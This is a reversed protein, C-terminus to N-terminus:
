GFYTYSGTVIPGRQVLSSSVRFLSTLPLYASDPAGPVSAGIIAEHIKVRIIDSTTPTTLGRKEVPAICHGSCGALHAVYAVHATIFTMGVSFSRHHSENNTSPRVTIRTSVCFPTSEIQIEDLAGPRAPDSDIGKLITSYSDL